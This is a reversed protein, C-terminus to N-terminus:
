FATGLLVMMHHETRMWIECSEAKFPLYLDILVHARHMLRDFNNVETAYLQEGDHNRVILLYKEM